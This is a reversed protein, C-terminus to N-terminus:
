IGLWASENTLTALADPDTSDAVFAVETTGTGLSWWDGGKTDIRNRGTHDIATKEIFDVDLYEDAALVIEFSVEEGTAPNRIAPNTVPGSFRVTPWSPANGQNVVFASGGSGYALTAPVAPFPLTGGGGTKLSIAYTDATASRLFPYAAEFEARFSAATPIGAQPPVDLSILVVSLYLSYGGVTITMTQEANGSALSGILAERQLLFDTVDSGMVVGEISVRRRGYYSSVFRGFDAGALDYSALRIPPLEFGRAGTLAFAGSGLTISGIAISDIM